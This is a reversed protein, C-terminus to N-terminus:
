EGQLRRVMAETHSLLAWLDVIVAGRGWRQGPHALIFRQATWQERAEERHVNTASQEWLDLLEEVLEM